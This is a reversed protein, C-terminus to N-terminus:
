GRPATRLESIAALVGILCFPFFLFPVPHGNLWHGLQVGILGLLMWGALMLAARAWRSRIRRVM